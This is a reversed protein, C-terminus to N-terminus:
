KPATGFFDLLAQGLVALVEASPRGSRLRTEPEVSLFREIADSSDVIPHWDLYNPNDASVFAATARGAAASEILGTSWHAIVHTAHGLDDFPDENTGDTVRVGCPMGAAERVLAKADDAALRPHLRVTIPVGSRAAAASASRIMGAQHELRDPQTLVLLGANCPMEVAAAAAVMPMPRAEAHALQWGHQALVGLIEPPAFYGGLRGTPPERLWEQGPADIHRSIAGHSVGALAAPEAVGDAILGPMVSLAATVFVTDSRNGTSTADLLSTVAVRNRDLLTETRPWVSCDVGLLRDCHSMTSTGFVLAICFAEARSRALGVVQM